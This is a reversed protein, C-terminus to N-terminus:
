RRRNSDQLFSIFGPNDSARYCLSLYGLKMKNNHPVCGAHDQTGPNGCASYLARPLWSRPLYCKGSFAKSGTVWFAGLHEWSPGLLGWSAGLHELIPGLHEWSPGLIGWSAGLIPGLPGLISWSPGLIRWSSGLISGLPRLISGFHGWSAGLHGLLGWSAGWIPGLPGLISWSAGLISGLPGWSARLIAGLHELDKWIRSTM